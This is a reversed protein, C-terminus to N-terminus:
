FIKRLKKVLSVGLKTILPLRNYRIQSYTCRSSGFSQYFRALNPDNSGEFDLTLHHQSHERIFSDLLYAIGHMQKGEESLGSFLFIMKNKSRAFIAGAVLQNHSSYVGYTLILGKYIGMYALRKLKQYHEDKFSKLKRGRNSKFLDIIEDPKVNKTVIHKANISKKLNRKLNDSYNKYLHEYSNILDLEFNQWHNIKFDGSPVKNFTNLSIEAFRFKEPIANLFSLVVAETLINKSIVGLQQTFVPQYLYEINWKKGTVLPFVRVYDDEVLAQWEEAVIDLYWSSAYILGNFSESICNDWKKKDIESHSLYRIM